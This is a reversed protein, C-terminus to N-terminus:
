TDLESFKQIWNHHEAKLMESAESLDVQKGNEQFVLKFRPDEEFVSFLEFLVIEVNSKVIDKVVEFDENDIKQLFIVKSKFMPPPNTKEKLSIIHKVSGDYCNSIIKRGLLDLIEDNKM